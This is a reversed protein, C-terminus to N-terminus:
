KAHQINKLAAIKGKLSLLRIQGKDHFPLILERNQPFKDMLRKYEEIESEVILININHAKEAQALEIEFCKANSIAKLPLSDSIPHKQLKVFDSAKFLSTKSYKAYKPSPNKDSVLLNQKVLRIVQRYIFRRAEIPEEFVNSISQLMDRLTTITFHNLDKEILLYYIYENLKITKSM